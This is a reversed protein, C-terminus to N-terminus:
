VERELIDGDSYHLFHLGRKQQQETETNNMIYPHPWGLLFALMADDRWGSVVIMVSQERLKVCACSM